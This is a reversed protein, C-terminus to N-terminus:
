GLINKEGNIKLSYFPLLSFCLDIAEQVYGLVHGQSSILGLVRQDM